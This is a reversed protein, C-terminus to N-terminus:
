VNESGLMSELVGKYECAYGISDNKFGQNWSILDGRYNLDMDAFVALRHTLSLLAQDSGAMTCAIRYLDEVDGIQESLEVHGRQHDRSAIFARQAFSPGVTSM